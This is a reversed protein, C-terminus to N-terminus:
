ASTPPLSPGPFPSTPAILIHSWPFATRSAALLFTRQVGRVGVHLSVCWILSLLELAQLLRTSRASARGVVVASEAQEIQLFRSLRHDITLSMVGNVRYLASEQRRQECSRLRDDPLVLGRKPRDLAEEM